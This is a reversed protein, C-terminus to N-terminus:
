LLNHHHTNLTILRIALLVKYTNEVSKILLWMHLPLKYEHQRNISNALMHVTPPDEPQPRGSLPRKKQCLQFSHVASNSKGVWWHMTFSPIHKMVVANVSEGVVCQSSVSM